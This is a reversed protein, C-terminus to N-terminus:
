KLENKYCANYRLDQYLYFLVLVFDLLIYDRWVWQELVRLTLTMLAPFGRLVHFSLM